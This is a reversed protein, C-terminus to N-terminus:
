EAAEAEDDDEFGAAYLLPVILAPVLGVGYLVMAAGAPLGGFLSADPGEPAGILLAAAIGGGVAFLITFLAALVPGRRSRNGVGLAVFSALLLATAVALVIAAWLPAGDTRFATLYAGIALMSAVAIGWPALRFESRPM